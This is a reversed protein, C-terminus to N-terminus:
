EIVEDAIALVGPAITLGLAKATKLNIVLDFKTPLMIPLDAPKAGKLIQATYLGLQRYVDIIDIGYSILGGDMPYERFHYITPLAHRAALAIIQKRRTDFYPSSALALARIREKAMTEFAADIERESDARLVHVRVGIARAAEEADRIQGASPPFSTHALFGITEAGPVLDHLLGLRKPDLTTTLINVGTVNGGPRNFSAALGLKVPDGSMAFVIPITSTAAKAAMPAPEGGGAVLVAVPMRVLEKAFDPLRAFQGRAWRYEIKVNQGDIFGGDRLGRRFGAAIHAADDSGRSHLYGIVPMPAQARAALPWAAWAAAGGVIFERRGIGRTGSATCRPADASRHAASGPSNWAGSISLDRTQLAGRRQADHQAAGPVCTEDDRSKM